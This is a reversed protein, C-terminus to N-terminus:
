PCATSWCGFAVCASIVARASAVFRRAHLGQALNYRNLSFVGPVRALMSDLTLNQEGPATGAEVVTVAVPASLWRAHSRPTTILLPALEVVADDPEAAQVGVSGALLWISAAIGCLSLRM